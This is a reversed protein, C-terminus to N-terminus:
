KKNIWGLAQATNKSFVVEDLSEPITFDVANVPIYAGMVEAKKQPYLPKKNPEAYGIPYIPSGNFLDYFDEAGFTHLSEHLIIPNNARIDQAYLNVVAIRGRELATSRDLETKRDKPNFYGLYMVTDAGLDDTRFNKVGFFRFQLSWVITRWMSNAVEETPLVPNSKVQSSLVYEMKIPKSRFQASNKLVFAGIENFDKQTLKDIYKQTEAQGDMNIPHM